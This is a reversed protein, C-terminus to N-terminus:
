GVAERVVAIGVFLILLWWAVNIEWTADKNQTWYVVWEWLLKINSMTSDRAATSPPLFGLIIGATSGRGTM